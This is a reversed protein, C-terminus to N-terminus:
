EFASDSAGELCAICTVDPEAAACLCGEPSANLSSTFDFHKGLDTMLVLHVTLKRFSMYDARPWDALFRHEPMLLATFAASLHHRELVSEDHYRLALESDRKIEHANNTGPHSFDHVAAAFLGAFVELASLPWERHAAEDTASAVETAEVAAAPAAANTGSSGSSATAAAAAAAALAGDAASASCGSSARSSDERAAREVLFRHMGLLVDAAHRRNHYANDGPPTRMALTLRRTRAIERALAAPAAM